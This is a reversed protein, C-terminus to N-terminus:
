GMRMPRTPSKAPNPSRGADPYASATERYAGANRRARRPGSEFTRRPRPFARDSVAMVSISLEGSRSVFDPSITRTAARVLGSSVIAAGAGSGLLAPRTISSSPPTMNVPVASCNFVYRGMHGNKLTGGRVILAIRVGAVSPTAVGRTVEAAAIKEALAARQQCRARRDGKRSCMRMRGATRRCCDATTPGSRTPPLCQAQLQLLRNRLRMSHHSSIVM